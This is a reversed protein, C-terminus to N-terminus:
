GWKGGLLIKLSVTTMESLVSLIQDSIVEKEYVRRKFNSGMRIVISISKKLIVVVYTTLVHFVFVVDSRM